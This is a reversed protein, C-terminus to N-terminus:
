RRKRRIIKHIRIKKKSNRRNKRIRGKRNSRNSDKKRKTRVENYTQSGGLLKKAKDMELSGVNALKFIVAERKRGLNKAIEGISIRSSYNSKLTVVEQRTWSKGHRPTVLRGGRGSIIEKNGSVEYSDGGKNFNEIYSYKVDGPTYPQEFPKGVIRQSIKEILQGLINEDGLSRRTKQVYKQIIEVPIESFPKMSTLPAFKKGYKHIDRLHQCHISDKTLLIVQTEPYHFLHKQDIVGYRRYKVEILYARNYKDVVILDPHHRIYKAAPGQILNNRDALDKFTNEYGAKIVKFGAESFMGEVLKEALKGKQM